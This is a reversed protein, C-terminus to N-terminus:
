YLYGLGVYIAAAAESSHGVDLAVIFSEGMGIRMGGGFGPHLDTLLEDPRIRDAWVRGADLFVSPVVHFDRGALGFEAARWRLELNWLFMGKGVYRDKLVGRVTKAGGLGEDQRFSSQVTFLDYFPADGTVQQLVVRNALVLRRALTIYRRDSVTWRTYSWNSGLWGASRQVLLESWSGRAPGIERDRTDRVLGARVYNTRGGDAQAAPIVTGLQQALLTTGSDKPVPRLSVSALGFGLLLRLGRGLPRQVNVRLQTRTGDFRYFYPNADTVRTEDYSADNGIGYFPWAVQRVRAVYADVRWGEVVRPADFFLSLEQRGGTTLFVQPELMYAYPSVGTGYDYLQLIVGYGFGEDADYNLAPVGALERGTQAELVRPAGLGCVLPLCLCLAPM